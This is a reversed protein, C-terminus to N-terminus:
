KFNLIVQLRTGNTPYWNCSQDLCWKMFVMQYGNANNDEEQVSTMKILKEIHSKFWYIHKLKWTRNSGERLKKVCM